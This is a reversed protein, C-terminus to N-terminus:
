GGRQQPRLAVQLGRMTDCLCARGRGDAGELAGDRRAAQEREPQGAAGPLPWDGAHTPATGVALRRHHSLAAARSPSESRPQHAWSGRVQQSRLADTEGGGGGDQACYFLPPYKQATGPHAKPSSLEPRPTQKARLHERPEASARWACLPVPM